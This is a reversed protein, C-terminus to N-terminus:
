RYYRLMHGSIYYTYLLSLLFQLGVQVIIEYSGEGGLCPDVIDVPEDTSNIFIFLDDNSFVSDTIVLRRGPM